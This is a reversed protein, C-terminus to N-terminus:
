RSWRRRNARITDRLIEHRSQAAEGARTAAHAAVARWLRSGRVRRLLPRTNSM